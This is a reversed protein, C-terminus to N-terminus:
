TAPGKPPNALYQRLLTSIAWASAAGAEETTLGYTDKLLVMATPVTLVYALARVMRRASADEGPETVADIARRLQTARSSGQRRRSAHLISSFIVARIEPELGAYRQFLEPVFGALEEVGELDPVEGLRGNLNIWTADLLEERTPFHRFVTRLSVQAQGAVAPMTVSDVGAVILAVAADVIRQRTEQAQRERLPSEYTRTVDINM